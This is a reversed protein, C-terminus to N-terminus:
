DDFYYYFTMTAFYLLVMDDLFTNGTELIGITNRELLKAPRGIFYKNTKIENTELAIEVSMPSRQYFDYLTISPDVLILTSFEDLSKIEEIQIDSYIWSCFKVDKGDILLSNILQSFMSKKSDNGCFIIKKSKKLAKSFSQIQKYNVFDSYKYEKGDKVLLVAEKCQKANLYLTQLDIHSYQMELLLSSKFQAYGKNASISKVFKSVAAKSISTAKSIDSLSVSDLRTINLLIYQSLIFETSGPKSTEYLERMRTFLYM